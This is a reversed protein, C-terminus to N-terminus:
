PWPARGHAARCAQVLGGRREPELQALIIGAAPQHQLHRPRALRAGALVRIADIPVVIGSRMWASVLSSRGRRQLPARVRGDIAAAQGVGLLGQPREILLDVPAAKRDVDGQCFGRMNDRALAADGDIGFNAFQGAALDGGGILNGFDFRKQLLAAVINLAHSFAGDGRHQRVLGVSVNGLQQPQPLLRGLSRRIFEGSQEIQGIVITEM